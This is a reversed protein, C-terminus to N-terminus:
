SAISLDLLSRLKALLEDQTFPKALVANAGILRATELLRNPGVAGGGTIAIVPLGWGARRIDAITELGEKNPMLVDTIVLDVDKSLLALGETGDRATLTSHGEVELIAEILQLIQPEDDIVLILSM